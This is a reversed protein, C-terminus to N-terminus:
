RRFGALRLELLTTAGNLDVSCDARRRATVVDPHESSTGPLAALEMAQAVSLDHGISAASARVRETDDEDHFLTARGDFPIGRVSRSKTM